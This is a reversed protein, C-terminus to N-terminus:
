KVSLSILAQYQQNVAEMFSPELLDTVEGTDSTFSISKVGDQMRHIDQMTPFCYIFNDEDRTQKLSIVSGDALRFSVPADYSIHYKDETGVQIALDLDEGNTNKYYLYSLQINYLFLKGSGVIPKATVITSNLNDTYTAVEATLEVTKEAAEYIAKCHSELVKGFENGPFSSQIYDDPNWGTVVDISKIGSRVIKEMDKDDLAFKTRNWYFRDKDTVYARKTASDTGIQEARVIKGNNMTIAMKVGKPVNTATKQEFHMYLLYMASGDPLGVLEVRTWFPVSGAKVLEYDTSIHTMGDATRYNSRIEQAGAGASMALLLLMAAFAKKM